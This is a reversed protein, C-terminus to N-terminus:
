KLTPLLQNLILNATQTSLKNIFKDYLKAEQWVQKDVGVEKALADKVEYYSSIGDILGLKHAEQPLFIRANAWSNAEELKLSRAAAVNEIFLSYSQNILDTLYAKEKDNWPRTISGAQKYEGASITQESIGLTKLLEQIQMGQMIVGISGIFSAPNSYIKNAWISALYSGSAMTGSAYAFVTKEKALNKIANSIEFSPAIAGGGSNVNLLIGKINEDNKAAQIKKLIEKDSIITGELNIELLNPKTIESNGGFLFILILLLVIVKFYTLTFDLMKKVASFFNDLIYRIFKVIKGENM